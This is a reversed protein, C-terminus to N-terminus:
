KKNKPLIKNINMDNFNEIYFNLSVEHIAIANLSNLFSLEYNYLIDFNNSLFGAKFIIFSQNKNINANIIRLGTGVTLMNFSIDSGIILNTTKKQYAFFLNPKIVTLIQRKDNIFGANYSFILLPSLRTMNTNEFSTVPFSIHNISFEINNYNTFKLFDEYYFSFGAGFDHTTLNDKGNFVYATPLVNGLVPDLQDSFIFNTQNLNKNIIGAKFGLSFFNQHRDILYIFNYNINALNTTVVGMGEYFRTLNIGCGMALSKETKDQIRFEFNGNLDSFDSGIGAYLNRYNTSFALNHFLGYVAPNYIKSNTRSNTFIPDQSFLNNVTFLLFLSLFFIKHKM